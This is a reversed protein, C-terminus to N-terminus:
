TKGTDDLSGHTTTTLQELYVEVQNKGCFVEPSMACVSERISM